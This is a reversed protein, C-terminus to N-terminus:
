VTELGIHAINFSFQKTQSNGHSEEIEQIRTYTLISNIIFIETDGTYNCAKIYVQKSRDCLSVVLVLLTVVINKNTSLHGKSLSYVYYRAM